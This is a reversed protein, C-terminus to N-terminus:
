EAPKPKGKGNGAAGKTAGAEDVSGATDPSILVRIAKGPVQETPARRPRMDGAPKAGTAVDQGRTPRAHRTPTILQAKMDGVANAGTISSDGSTVQVPGTAEIRTFGGSAKPSKDAPDKAGSAASF